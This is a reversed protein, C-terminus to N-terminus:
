RGGGAAGAPIAEAAKSRALDVLDLRELVAHLDRVEAHLLPEDPLADALAAVVESALVAMGLRTVHLRDTQLLHAPELVLRDRGLAIERKRERLDRLREGLSFLRVNPRTAAWARLRANLEALTEADPIAHPALMRPDIDRMEPYDGVLMPRDIRALAALGEDQLKMRAARDGGRTSYGFWFLFDIALVADPKAALARDVQKGGIREPETFMLMSSFDRFQLSDEAFLPALADRLKLTANHERDDATKPTILQDSFGASASAGLIAVVRTRRAAGDAAAPEASGQAAIGAVLWLVSCTVATRRRVAFLM